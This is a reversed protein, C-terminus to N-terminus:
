KKDIATPDNSGHALFHSCGLRQAEAEPDIEPDVAMVTIWGTKRLNPGAQPPTDAPLYVRRTETQPPAVARAVSDLFITVGTAHEGATTLYRGGRGLEGRVGQRFITFSIGTQYEFGRYEVPDVTLDLGPLFAQAGQAVARLRSVEAAAADPLTMGELKTLATDATGTAAILATLTDVGGGALRAVEGQDKRDLADRLQAISGNNATDNSATDDAHTADIVSAVLAPSNLDITVGEIGIAALATVALVLIEVDAEVRDPGILEAGAQAFQREPRLQGGHVTLVDGGYSLRLPRPSKSLRTAAIRAIQPTMDARAAMMQGGKPDLVRFMHAGMAQGGSGLITSEFELLPPNVREYGNSAFSAVLGSLLAIEHAAHPPLVDHLGAPLLTQNERDDM